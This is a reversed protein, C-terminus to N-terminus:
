AARTRGAAVPPGGEVEARRIQAALTHGWAWSYPPSDAAHDPQGLHDELDARKISRAIAGHAGDADAIRLTHREFSETDRRTLLDLVAFEISTLGHM